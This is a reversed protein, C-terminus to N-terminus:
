AFLVTKKLYHTYICEVSPRTARGDRVRVRGWGAWVLLLLDIVANAINPILM